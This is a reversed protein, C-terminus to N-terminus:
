SAEKAVKEAAKTAPLIKGEAILRANHPDEAEKASLDFYDGDPIPAGSALCEHTV